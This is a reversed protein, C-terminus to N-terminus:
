CITFRNASPSGLCFDTGKGIQMPVNVAMRSGGVFTGGSSGVDTLTIVGKRLEVKCHHRSVGKTDPPMCIQCDALRGILMPGEVLPVMSGDPCRLWATMSPKKKGKVLVLVIVVACILIVLGLGAYLLWGSSGSGTKSTYAVGLLSLREMIYGTSIAICYANNEASSYTNVGVVRGKADVLPGGSNGSAIQADHVLVSITQSMGMDMNMHQSVVGSTITIDDIGSGVSSNLDGILGPYGLAYVPTGSAVDDSHRLPLAKFGTVTKTARIVAYDPIGGNDASSYLVECEVANQPVLNQDLYWDDLLLYVRCMSPDYGGCTTVHWNTVFVNSDQGANGVAFGTGTCADIIRGSTKDGKYVITLLQAVGKKVESLMKSDDAASAPLVLMSMCLLLVTLLSIIRKANKMSM